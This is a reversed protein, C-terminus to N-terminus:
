LFFKSFCLFIKDLEVRWQTNVSDRKKEILKLLVRSHIVVGKGEQRQNLHIDNSSTHYLKARGQAHYSFSARIRVVWLRQNAMDILLLKVKKAMYLHKNCPLRIRYLRCCERHASWIEVALWIYLYQLNRELEWWNQLKPLDMRNLYSYIRTELTLVM